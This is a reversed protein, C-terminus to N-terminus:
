ARGRGAMSAPEPSALGHPEGTRRLPLTLVARSGRGPASDITLKGGMHALRERISFLGFGGSSGPRVSQPDFGRGHDEIAIRCHGDASRSMSLTAEDVGSYKVANLLLERVAEFLFARDDAGPPDAGADLHLSLKFQQKAELRTALWTLAAGLGSQQLVPPYLEVTLSRSAEITESLIGALTDVPLRNAEHGAMRILNVQIQAAVLLQQINDHLVRALRQRERQEAQGLEAALARLHGAQQEILAAREALARENRVRETVDHAAAFVGTVHGHEDRYVTANYNVPTVRGDRHRVDLPYDRVVGERFAQQYAARAREPETFYDSFDTGILDGRSRGTITETAINADTITGDPGITVLPDLSAEILRRNYAGAAVIEATRDAVRHELEVNLQRMADETRKRDSIDDFVVVAAVIAGALDHLPASGVVVPIGTGDPRHITMEVDRVARGTRLSESVPMEEPKFPTGDPKLTWVRATRAAVDLGVYDCGYLELARKNTYSFRGDADVIVVANPITELITELRRRDVETRESARQVAEEAVKRETIDNIALLVHRRGDITLPDASVEVWLSRDRGGLLHAAELEVGRIPGGGGLVATCAQRVPCSACVAGHGCGEPESRANLCNIVDGPQRGVLAAADSGMWRALTQNVRVAAGAEDVLMLGVNVVDFMRQLNERERALTDAARGRDTIDLVAIYRRRNGIGAPQGRVEVILSAGDPRVIQYEGASARAAGISAAARERDGPVVLDSLFTGPLSDRSRGVLGAFQENCDLIVGGESEVIGEFAAAAFASLRLESRRAAFQAAHVAHLMAVTVGGLLLALCLRVLAEPTLEGRLAGMVFYEVAVDGLVVSLLGPGVGLLLTAVVTAMLALLYSGATGMWGILAFRLVTAVAVLPLVLAYRWPRPLFWLRSSTILRLLRDNWTALREDAEDPQTWPGTERASGIAAVFLCLGGMWQAARGIWNVLSGVSPQIMVASLGVARRGTLALSTVAAFAALTAGAGAALWPLRARVNRTLRTTLVAGALFSRAVLLLAGLAVLTYFTPSLVLRLTPYDCTDALGAAHAAPAGAFLLLLLLAVVRIPWARDILPGRAPSTAPHPGPPNPESPM